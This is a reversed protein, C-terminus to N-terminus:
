KDLTVDMYSAPNVLNGDKWVEFHVQGDNITEGTATNSAVGIIDGKAVTDGIQVNVDSSLSGYTTILGDGHDISIVTGDLLNTKIDTVTGDYVAMVNTGVEAYFDIAKHTEWVNLVKNYQLESDSYGKLITANMVPLDFSIVTSGTPTSNEEKSTVASTVIIAVSLLVILGILAFYYSYKKLFYKLGKSQEHKNEKEM